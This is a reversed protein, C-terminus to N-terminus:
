VNVEHGARKVSKVWIVQFSAYVGWRDQFRQNYYDEARRLLDKGIYANHSVTNAGIDKLWQLLSSMNEFHVKIMELETSIDAFGAKVLASRTDEVSPLRKVRLQQDDQNGNLAYDLAAFLEELTKEGFMTFCFTGNKKLAAFSFVFAQELDEVWQYALNSTIIDFVEKRFPLRAADAQVIALSPYKERAYEIMGSAFDIGVVKAEPFYFGLQNTLRGTGMGVDLIRACEEKDILRKLLERGIERQLGALAEYQMASSSFAQRIKDDILKLLM